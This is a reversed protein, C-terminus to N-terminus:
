KLDKTLTNGENKLFESIILDERSSKGGKLM